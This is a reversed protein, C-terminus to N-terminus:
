GFAQLALAHYRSRDGPVPAHPWIMLPAPGLDELGLSRVHAALRSSGVPVDVRARSVCGESAGDVLAIAADEDEAVVPGVVELEGNHWRIAFGGREDVVVRGAHELLRTLLASRRFGFARADEDVIRAHDSAAADRVEPPRLAPRLMGIHKQAGDVECFGLREYLPRGAATAYLMLPPGVETMAHELLTRGLGRGQAAPDVVMMAVFGAGELGTIVVMALLAGDLAPCGHGRGLSLLLDWKAGERPWGVRQALDM